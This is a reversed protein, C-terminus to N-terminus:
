LVMWVGILARASAYRGPAFNLPLSAMATLFFCTLGIVWLFHRRETFKARSIAGLALLRGRHAVLHSRESSAPSRSCLNCRKRSRSRWRPPHDSALDRTGRSRLLRIARFQVTPKTGNAAAEALQIGFGVVRESLWKPRQKRMRSPYAFHFERTRLGILDTILLVSIPIPFSFPVLGCSM